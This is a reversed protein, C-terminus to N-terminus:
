PFFSPWKTRARRRAKEVGGGPGFSMGLSEGIVEEVHQVQFGLRRWHQVLLAIRFAQVQKRRLRPADADLDVTVTEGLAMALKRPTVPIAAPHRGDVYARVVAATPATAGLGDRLAPAYWSDM